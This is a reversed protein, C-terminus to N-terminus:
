KATAGLHAFFNVLGPGAGIVLAAGASTLAAMRGRAAYHHSSTHSAVAWMAAGIFTGLLTIALAWADVGNVIQQLVNSGPLASPDPTASVGAIPINM